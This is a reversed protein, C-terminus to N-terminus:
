NELAQLNLPKTLYHSMGFDTAKQQDKESLLATWASISPVKIQLENCLDVIDVLVEYGNRVPIDLDLFILSFTSCCQNQSKQKILELAIQGSSAKELMFLYQKLRLELACLNFDNDDILLIQSCDCQRNQNLQILNNQIDGNVYFGNTVNFYLLQAKQEGINSDSHYISPETKLVIQSVRRSQNQISNSNVFSSLPQQSYVQTQKPTNAQMFPSLNKIQDLEQIKNDEKKSKQAINPQIFINPELKEKSEHQFINCSEEQLNDEAQNNLNFISFDCDIDQKSQFFQAQTNYINNEENRLNPMPNSNSVQFNQDYFIAQNSSQNQQSNSSRKLLNIQNNLQDQQHKLKQNEQHKSRFTSQKYLSGELAMQSIIKNVIQYIFQSQNIMNQTLFSRKNEDISTNLTEDQNNEEASIFSSQLETSEMMSNKNGKQNYQNETKNQVDLMNNNKKLKEDFKFIQKIEFMNEEDDKDYDEKKPFNCSILKNVDLSFKNQKVMKKKNKIYFTFISGKGVESSANLPKNQGLCISLLYCIKLGQSMNSDHYFDKQKEKRMNIHQQTSQYLNQFMQKLEDSPIGEGSDKVDVQIINKLPQSLSICINGKFTNKLANTLLNIIIQRIKSLDSYIVQPVNEKSYFELQINKQIAPFKIFNLCELCLDTLSFTQLIINVKGPQTFDSKEQLDHIINLLIYSQFLAPNIYTNKIFDHTSDKSNILDLLSIICSLPTALELSIQKFIFSKQQSVKKKVIGKFQPSIQNFEITFFYKKYFNSKTTNVTKIKINSKSLNGDNQSQDKSQLYYFGSAKQTPLSSRKINNCQYLNIQSSSIFKIDNFDNILKINNIKNKSSKVSKNTISNIMEKQNDEFQFCGIKIEILQNQNQKDKRKLTIILYDNVFSYKYAQEISNQNAQKKNRCYKKHILPSQAIEQPELLLQSCNNTQPSPRTLVIFNILDGLSAEENYRSFFKLAPTKIDCQLNKSTFLRKEFQCQNANIAQTNLLDLNNLLNQQQRMEQSDSFFSINNQTRLNQDNNIQNYCFLNQQNKIEFNRLDKNNVKQFNRDDDNNHENQTQNLLNENQNLLNENQDTELTCLKKNNKINEYNYNDVKAEETCTNFQDSNKEEFLKQDINSIDKLNNQKGSQVMQKLNNLLPAKQSLEENKEFKIKIELLRFNNEQEFNSYSTQDVNKALGYQNIINELSKNQFIISQNEDVISLGTSFIQFYQSIQSVKLLDNNFSQQVDIPQIINMFDENNISKSNFEKQIHCKSEEMQSNQAYQIQNAKYQIIKEHLNISPSTLRIKNQKELNLNNLIIQPQKDMSNNHNYLYNINDIASEIKYEDKTTICAIYVFFLTLGLQFSTYFDIDNVGIINRVEIYIIQILLVNIIRSNKILSM